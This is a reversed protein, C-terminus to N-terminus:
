MADMWFLITLHQHINQIKIDLTYNKSTNVIFNHAFLDYDSNKKVNYCENKSVSIDPYKKWVFCAYVTESYHFLVM